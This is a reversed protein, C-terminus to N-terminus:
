IINYDLINGTPSHKWGNIELKGSHTMNHHTECLVVLNSITNKLKPKKNFNKQYIIHHSELNTTANCIECKNVYLNSNYRSKKTQQKQIIENYISSLDSDFAGLDLVKRAINIGYHEKCKGDKIEHTYIINENSLKVDVHKIALNNSEKVVSLETLKHLHTAFIFLSGNEILHKLTFAVITLASTDETGRCPEDGIILSKESSNHLITKLESMEVIFSSQGKYINDADGFRTYIKELPRFTMREAAVYHGSQAMIVNLAIAKSYTSKGAGNIGYLLIGRTTDDYKVDCPDYSIKTDLMEVIPHRMGEINLIQNDVITPCIYNNLQACKARSKTFDIYAIKNHVKEFLKNYKKYVFDFTDNLLTSVLVQMEDQLKNIQHFISNIENNVIYAKTGKECKFQFESTHEKIKKTRHQTTEIANNELKVTANNPLYSNIKICIKEIKKTYTELEDSLNDISYDFGKTFINGNTDLYEVNFVKEIYQYYNDFEEDKLLISVHKYCGILSQLETMKISKLGLKRHLKQIDIVHKLHSEYIDINPIMEEIEKYMTEITQKCCSPNLIQKKLFRKGLPTSTYDLINFLSKEKSLNVINLQYLSNNHLIMKNNYNEFRPYDLNQILSENHTECFSLLVVVSICANSYMEIDLYELMSLTSEVKFIEKLVFNQYDLRKYKADYKVCTTKKSFLFNFESIDELNHLLIIESPSVTEIIRYLDEQKSYNSGTHIEYLNLTGLIIDLSSIGFFYCNNHKEIYISLINNSIHTDQIYTGPSIIQSVKRISPDNVDQDILVVTFNKEMLQPLYKSVYATNFGSMYPNKIDPNTCNKNTRTLAINCVQSFQQAKGFMEYQYCEYFTGKQILVITDPGYIEEYTKQYDFYQENFNLTM